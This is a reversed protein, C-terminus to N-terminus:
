KITKIFDEVELNQLSDYWGSFLNFQMVGKESAYQKNLLHKSSPCNGDTLSLLYLKVGSGYSVTIPEQTSFECQLSHKNQFKQDNIIIDDIVGRADRCWGMNAKIEIMAVVQSEANVVLLDPRNNKGDVHISPDLFIMYDKPLIESVFLAIADEIDTSISRLHGRVINSSLKNSTSDYARAINNKLNEIAQNM